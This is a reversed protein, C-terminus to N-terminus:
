YSLCYHALFRSLHLQREEKELPAMGLSVEWKFFFFFWDPPFFVWGIWFVLGCDFWCFCGLIVLFFLGVPSFFIELGTHCYTVSFTYCLIFVLYFLICIVLEMTWLNSLVQVTFNHILGRKRGFRQVMM